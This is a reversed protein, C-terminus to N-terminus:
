CSPPEKSCQISGGQDLRVSRAVEKIPMVCCALCNASVEAKAGAEERPTRVRQYKDTPISSPGQRAM